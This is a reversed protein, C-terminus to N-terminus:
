GGRQPPCSPLVTIPCSDDSSIVAEEAEQMASILIEKAEGFNQKDLADIANATAAALHFYITGYDTM